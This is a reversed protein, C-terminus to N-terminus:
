NIVRGLVALDFNYRKVWYRADKANLAPTISYNNKRFLRRFAWLMFPDDDVHLISIFPKLM